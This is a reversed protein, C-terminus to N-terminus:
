TKGLIVVGADKLRRTVTADYVPVWGELIRSGCTTPVGRTALVDKLALPVGALPSLEDGKARAADVAAAAALAGDSDVHLFAHVQADVAAIRDLHATAVEVASVAGAAVLDATRAATLRTL